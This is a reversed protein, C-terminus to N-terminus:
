YIEIWFWAKPNNGVLWHNTEFTALYSLYPALEKSMVKLAAGEFVIKKFPGEIRYDTESNFFRIFSKM